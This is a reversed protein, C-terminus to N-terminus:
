PRWAYGLKLFFARQRQSLPVRTEDPETLGLRDDSYGLFLVTLPNVKYSFLLQTAVATRDPSVPNLHMDPNRDTDRLQVTARVFTRPDFNYVGRVESVLADFIRKGDLSQRQWGLSGQLDVHRGLRLQLSTNLRRENAERGNAFDVAGGTMGFVEVGVAGTPRLSFGSWLQVFEHVRGAFWQRQISPNVWAQSQWPGQAGFNAWIGEESLRGSWSANHWFGGSAEVRTLLADPGGWFFRNVWGEAAKLDVRTIFGGDARFQPELARAVIGASWNRTGYSLQVRAANAGFRGEPQAFEDAVEAPYGTESHLFQASVSLAPLLRFFADGGVVHNGYGEGFRGTYLGGVTSSAGVDRRFRGYGSWVRRDLSTGVSGQNSPFLLNNVDDLTLMAGLASAGAKGTIKTGFVPEAVTRTFVARLPTQFFDAGELFFPRREPFFLAFRSNADLQPADAEVQSFDPNLTANLALNTTMGWRVDLGLEPDIPGSAVPGAPFDERRDLKSATLTPALELNLGPSIGQLGTILNAQCLLCAQSRNWYMSRTQVRESRPWERRAYFGWTHVERSAPFRLSKFPIAAEVVYGGDVIQGASAWIADWSADSARSQEEYVADSQVGLASIGFEFARRADNFPDLAVVIRDHESIDDRDTVYARISEPNPDHAVCGLYLHDPDFALYCETRVPAPDNDGPLTEYFLPIPVATGWVKEDLRGDVSVEADSRTVSYEGRVGPGPPEPLDSPPPAGPKRTTAGSESGYTAAAQQSVPQASLVPSALVGLFVVLGGLLFLNKMERHSCNSHPRPM